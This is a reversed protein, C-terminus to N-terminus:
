LNTFKSMRLFQKSNLRFLKTSPEIFVSGSKVNKTILTNAGFFCKNEISVSHGITSNIAFFNNKGILVNGAINVGSTFWNNNGIESHHGIVTGSWVFNNDGMKVRPHIMVHNMIFCNQGVILDKPVGSQPHIYSILKYKKAKTEEIKSARVANLDHYGIAVFMAYEKPSYHKEIDEFAVVPLNNFTDSKVYEKNVTFAVIEFESEEQLYYSIVDAIKGTGFVIIKKM